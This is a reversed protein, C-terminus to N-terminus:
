KLNNKSKFRPNDYPSYEPKNKLKEIHKKALAVDEIISVVAEMKSPHFEDPPPNDYDVRIGPVFELSVDDPTLTPLVANRERLIREKNEPKNNEAIREELSIPDIVTVKGTSTELTVTRGTEKSPPNEPVGYENPKIKRPRGRKRKEQTM